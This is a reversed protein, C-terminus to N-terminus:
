DTHQYIAELIDAITNFSVGDDNLRTLSSTDLKKKDKFIGITVPIEGRHSFYSSVAPNLSSLFAPSDLTSDTHLMKNSPVSKLRGQLKSLVGLCCYYKVGHEKKCLTGNGQVYEGSRLAQLWANLGKFPKKIYGRPFRLSYKHKEEIDTFNM